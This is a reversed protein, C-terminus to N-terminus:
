LESTEAPIGRPIEKLKARSCRVVTGTCTCMPPCYNDGLCGQDSDGLFFNINTFILKLKTIFFHCVQVSLNM